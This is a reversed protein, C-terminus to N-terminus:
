AESATVTATLVSTASAPDLYYVKTVISDVQSSAMHLTVATTFDFYNLTNVPRTIYDAGYLSTGITYTWVIQNSQVDQTFSSGDVYGIGPINQKTLACQSPDTVNVTVTVKCIAIGTKEAALTMYNQLYKTVTSTGVTTIASASEMTPTAKGIGYLTLTPMNYSGTSPSPIGTLDVTFVLEKVGDGTIDKYQVSKVMSNMAQIKAYDVYYSSSSVVSAYVTNQDSPLINLSAGTGSGLLVWAGARNAYWAVSVDTGLQLTSTIDLSKYVAASSTVIGNITGAGSPTPTPTPQGIQLSLKPGLMGAQNAIVGILLLGLLGIVYLGTNSKRVVVTRRKSM